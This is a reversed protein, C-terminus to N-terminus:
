KENEPPAGKEPAGKKQKIKVDGKKWSFRRKRKEESM